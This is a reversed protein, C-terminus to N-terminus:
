LTGVVQGTETVLSTLTERSVAEFGAPLSAGLGLLASWTPCAILRVGAQSVEAALAKPDLQRAAGRAQVPLGLKTGADALALRMAPGSLARPWDFSGGAFAALAAQTVLVAVDKGAANAERATALTGVASSATADRLIFLLDMSDNEGIALKAPALICPEPLGLWLVL